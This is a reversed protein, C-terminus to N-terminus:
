ANYPYQKATHPFLRNNSDRYIPVIGYPDPGLFGRKGDWYDGANYGTVDIGEGEATQVFIGNEPKGVIGWGVFTLGRDTKRTM